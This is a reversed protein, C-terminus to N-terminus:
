SRKGDSLSASSANAAAATQRGDQVGGILDGDLRKQGSADSKAADGPVHRPGDVGRESVAGRFFGGCHRFREANVM